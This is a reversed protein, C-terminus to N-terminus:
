MLLIFMFFSKNLAPYPMIEKEEKGSAEPQPDFAPWANHGPM